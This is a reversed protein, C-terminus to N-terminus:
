SFDRYEIQKKELLSGDQYIVITANHTPSLVIGVEFKTPKKITSKVVQRNQGRADSVIIAIDTAVGQDVIVMISETVIRADQPYGSSIGLEVEAGPAAQSGPSYPYQRFVVGKEMYSPEQKIKGRKLGNKMLLVEAQAQTLGILNPMEVTKRGGSVTILVPVNAPTVLTGPAPDQDTVTGEAFEDSPQTEVTVKNFKALQLDIHRRPLGILTPMAIQQAGRSVHITIESNKKVRMGPPPSQKIVMDVPVDDSYKEEKLVRLEKEELVKIAEEVRMNEVRPTTVEPVYFISLIYNFGFVGLVFVLSLFALWGVPKLWHNPRQIRRNRASRFGEQAFEDDPALNNLMEQTIAPIVKTSEADEGQDPIMLKPENRRSPDLSTALDRKMAKASQYRLLPDKFLARLIINEISQAINANLETPHVIDDQLHKLAVSIPSDGSFPVQGTVM